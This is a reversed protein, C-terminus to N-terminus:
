ALGRAARWLDHKLRKEAKGLQKESKSCCSDQKDQSDGPQQRKKSLLCTEFSWIDAPLCPSFAVARQCTQLWAEQLRVSGLVVGPEDLPVGAGRRMARRPLWGADVATLLAKQCRLADEVDDRSYDAVCGGHGAPLRHHGQAARWHAPLDQQIAWSLLTTKASHSSYSSWDIGPEVKRMIHILCRMACLLGMPSPIAISEPLLFDVNGRVDNALSHLWQGLASFWLHGWGWEPLRGTIGCCFLAFPQGKKSTKTRWCEGRMLLGEVVLSFPSTRQGDGFRLSGWLLVLFFGVVLVEFHELAGRTIAREMAAVAAASFPSAEHKVSAPKSNLFGCVAPSRAIQAFALVEFKDCVFRVASIVSSVSGFGASVRDECAAELLVHLFDCFQGCSPSGANWGATVAFSSWRRWGSLHRRLTSSAWMLPLRLHAHAFASSALTKVLSNCNALDVSLLEVFESIYRAQLDVEISAASRSLGAGESNTFCAGSGGPAFRARDRVASHQCGFAVHTGSSWSAVPSFHSSLLEDILM